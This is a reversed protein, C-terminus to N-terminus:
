GWKTEAPFRSSFASQVQEILESQMSSPAGEVRSVQEMLSLTSAAQERTFEREPRLIHGINAGVDVGHRLMHVSSALLGAADRPQLQFEKEFVDLIARKQEASVEGDCKATAVVLVGAIDMPKDLSYLPNSEYQQRWQRRRKWLFPNLGWPDIGLEKLIYLITLAAGLVGLVIHM